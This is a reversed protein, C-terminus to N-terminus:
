GEGCVAAGEGLCEAVFATCEDETLGPPSCAYGCDRGDPNDAYCVSTFACQPYCVITCQSNRVITVQPGALAGDFAEPEAYLGRGNCIPEAVDEFEVFDNSAEWGSKYATVWNLPCNARATAIECEERDKADGGDGQDESPRTPSQGDDGAGDGSCGALWVLVIFRRM